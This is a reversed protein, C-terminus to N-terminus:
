QFYEDDVKFDKTLGKEKKRQVEDGKRHLSTSSHNSIHSNRRQVQSFVGDGGGRQKSVM